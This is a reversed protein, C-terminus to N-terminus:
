DEDPDDEEELYGEDESSVVVIEATAPFDIVMHAEGPSDPM